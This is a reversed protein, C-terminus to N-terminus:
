RVKWNEASDTNRNELSNRPFLVAADPGRGETTEQAFCTCGGSLPNAPLESGEPRPAFPQASSAEARPSHVLERGADRELSAGLHTGRHDITPRSFPSLPCLEESASRM